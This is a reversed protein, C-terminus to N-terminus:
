VAVTAEPVAEAVIVAHRPTSAVVGFSTAFVVALAVVAIVVVFAAM